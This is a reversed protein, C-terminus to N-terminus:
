KFLNAKEKFAAKRAKKEEDQKKREEREELIEKEFKSSENLKNVKAEFFNKAGGVGEQGVDIESLEALQKLGDIELEGLSAKRFILLFERYSIKGDFDEDVEKIMGKLGLHTQPAGLKEMMYKLELLDIFGDKGTDYKKFMAKFERLQKLTFEKFETNPNFVKTSNVAAEETGENINGQRKLKQALENDASDTTSKEETSQDVQNCKPEINEAPAAEKGEIINQRRALRAALENEAM